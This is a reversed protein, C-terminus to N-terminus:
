RAENWAFLGDLFAVLRAPTRIELERGTGRMTRRYEALRGEVHLAKAAAEVLLDLDEDVIGYLGVLDDDGRAHELDSGGESVLAKFTARVIPDDASRGM